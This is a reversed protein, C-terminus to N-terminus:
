RSSGSAASLSPNRKAEVAMSSALWRALSVSGHVLSFVHARGPFEHCPDVLLPLVAAVVHNGGFELPPGEGLAQDGHREVFAQGVVAVPGEPPDGLAQVVDLAVVGPSGAEACSLLEVKVIVM